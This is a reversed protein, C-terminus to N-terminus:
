ELVLKRASVYIVYTYPPKQWHEKVVRFGTTSILDLLEQYKLRFNHDDHESQAPRILKGAITKLTSSIGDKRLKQSVRQLISPRPAAMREMVLREMIALGILMQGNPKLVRYGEKFALYPDAFHDVVSRMHVWDFCNSVFPLNEAHCSLFNCPKSLCPYAQLLNTKRAYRFVDLFPDVSVYVPVDEDSLYHRLRGQHGGVDLVSGTIPFETTYIERVSDIENLYEQLNDREAFDRDYDEYIQQIDRWKETSQPSLYTPRHIRFDYVQGGLADVLPYMSRCNGCVFQAPQAKLTGKCLPCCLLSVINTDLTTFAQM